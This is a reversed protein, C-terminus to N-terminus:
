ESDRLADLINQTAEKQETRLVKIDDRVEKLMISNYGVTTEMRAVGIELESVKSASAAGPHAAEGAHTVSLLFLGGLAAAVISIVSWFATHSVRDM